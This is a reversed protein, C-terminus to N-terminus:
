TNVALVGGLICLIGAWQVPRMREHFFLVGMAAALLPSSATIPTAVSVPIIEIGKTFFYGGGALGFTGAAVAWLWAKPSLSFIVLPNKGSRASRAGWYTWSVAFLFFARWVTITAPPIAHVSLLWKQLVLMAAWCIAAALAFLFGVPAIEERETSAAGGTKLLVLGAIMVSTGLVLPLTVPEDLWLASIATVFLPYCSTTGVSRGVGIKEIARFYALDGIVNGVLISFFIVLLLVPPFPWGIPAGPELLCFLFSVAVFGVTRAAGIESHSMLALGKKLFVPGLAWCLAALCSYLVGVLYM